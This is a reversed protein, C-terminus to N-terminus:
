DPKSSKTFTIPKLSVDINSSRAKQVLTKQIQTMNQIAGNHSKLTDVISVINSNIEAVKDTLGRIAALLGQFEGTKSLAKLLKETDTSEALMKCVEPDDLLRELSQSVINDLENKGM